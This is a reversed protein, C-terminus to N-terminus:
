LVGYISSPTKNKNKNQIVCSMGRLERSGREVRPSQGLFLQHTYMDEWIGARGTDEMEKAYFSGEEKQRVQIEKTYFTM